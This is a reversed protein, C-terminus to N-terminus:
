PSVTQADNSNAASRRDRGRCSESVLGHRYGAGAPGWVDLGVPSGGRRRLSRLTRRGPTRPEGGGMWSAKTLAGSDMYLPSDNSSDKLAVLSGIAFFLLVRRM